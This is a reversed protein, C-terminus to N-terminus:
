LVTMGSPEMRLREIGHAFHGTKNHALSSVSVDRNDGQM